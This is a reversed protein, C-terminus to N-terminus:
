VEVIDFRIRHCSMAIESRVLQPRPLPPSMAVLHGEWGLASLKQAVDKCDFRTSILPAVIMQPALSRLLDDDLQSFRAHAISAGRAEPIRSPVGSPNDLILIQSVPAVGPEARHLVTSSM